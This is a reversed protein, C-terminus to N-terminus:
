GHVSEWTQIVVTEGLRVAALLERLVRANAEGVDGELALEIEQAAVALEDLVEDRFEGTSDRLLQENLTVESGRMAAANAQRTARSLSGSDYM